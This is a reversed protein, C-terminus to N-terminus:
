ALAVTTLISPEFADEPVRWPGAHVADIARLLAPQRKVCQHMRRVKDARDPAGQAALLDTLASAFRLRRMREYREAAFRDFLAPEWSRSSTLLGSLVQADRMAVALGQGTIPNSWGAADGVLVVGPAYPNRTWTDTMPFSACPGIPTATSLEDAHPLSPVKFADLFRQQRDRGVFREGGDIPRACYLRVAGKRPFVYLQDTGHVGITVEARDWAECDDVLMGTLMIRPITSSLEV